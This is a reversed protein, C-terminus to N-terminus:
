GAPAAVDAGSTRVLDLRGALPAVPRLPAAVVRDRGQQKAQYLAADATTILDAARVSTEPICAVGFSATVGIGDRAQVVEAIRGRLQEARGVAMDLPCDPLLVALEEGGYRCAVDTTRLTAMITGGVERLVADGAAHGHQDNLRKFHDLDIMIASMPARRREADLGLRELMEELFRRNYLGTLPDRLAQNRLQERLAISSLALSMADALATAVSQVDRLRLEADEDLSSIELLGYIHGRAMMPIELGVRGDGAHNCRLAGATTANIHSKGRKLAWCSNPTIHDPYADAAIAGWATSLDLRDRSNNFVYLAGSFDPLLRVATARLVQNADEDDNASQLTDTMRFLEEVQQRAQLSHASAQERGRAESSGVRFAYIMAIIAILGGAPNIVLLADQELSIRREAAEAEIEREAIYGGIIARMEDMLPKARMAQLSAQAEAPQGSGAHDAAVEWVKRLDMIRRYVPNAESHTEPQNAAYQELKPLLTPSLTALGNLGSVYPQLYETRQTLVFGRIGSEAGILAEQFLRVDRTVLRFDLLKHQDSTSLVFGVVSSVGMFAVLSIALAPLMKRRGAKLVGGAKPVWGAEPVRIALNTIAPGVLETARFLNLPM